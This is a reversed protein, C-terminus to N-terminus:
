GTATARAQASPPVRPRGHGRFRARFSRVLSSLFVSSRDTSTDGCPPAGSGAFDLAFLTIGISLCLALHSIAEVRASSNGHLYILCPRPSPAAAGGEGGEGGAAELPMWHSCALRMGRPNVLELDVRKFFRGHWEFTVPGLDTMEYDARPPRIIANVLEQYGNSAMDWYSSPGGAEEEEAGQGGSSSGGEGVDSPTSSGLGM